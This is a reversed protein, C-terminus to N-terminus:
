KLGGVLGFNKNVIAPVGGGKMGRLYFPACGGEPLGGATDKPHPRRRFLAFFSLAVRFDGPCIEQTLAEPRQM